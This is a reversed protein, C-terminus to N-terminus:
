DLSSIAACALFDYRSVLMTSSNTTAGHIAQVELLKHASVTADENGLEDELEFEDDQDNEEVFNYLLRSHYRLNSERRLKQVSINSATEQKGRNDYLNKSTTRSRVQQAMPGDDRHEAMRAAVMKSQLIAVLLPLLWLKHISSSKTTM